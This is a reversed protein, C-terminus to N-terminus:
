NEGSVIKQCVVSMPTTVPLTTPNCKLDEWFGGVMARACDQVYNVPTQANVWNAWDAPSSDSEWVWQGESASDSLGLVFSGPSLSKLFENEANTKPEPLIAGINLCM